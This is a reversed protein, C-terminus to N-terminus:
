DLTSFVKADGLFEICDDMRPLTYSERLTVENLPRYHVCCRVSGDPKSVLVVPFESEASSPEIVGLALQRKFEAEIINRSAHRARYPKALRPAAGEKLEIRHPTVDIEGVLQGGWLGKHTELLDKVRGRLETPILDWALDPTPAAKDPTKTASSM